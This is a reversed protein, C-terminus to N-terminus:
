FVFDAHKRAPSAVRKSDLFDMARSVAERTDEAAIVGDVMGLSAAAFPNTVLEEGTFVKGAEPSM